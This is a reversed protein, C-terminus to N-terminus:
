TYLGTAGKRTHPLMFDSLAVYAPKQVARRGAVERIAPKKVLAQPGCTQVTLTNRCLRANPGNAFIQVEGVGLNVLKRFYASSVEGTASQSFIYVALIMSDGYVGRTRPAARPGRRRPVM